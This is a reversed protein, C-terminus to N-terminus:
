NKGIIEGLTKNNECISKKILNDTMGIIAGITKLQAASNMFNISNAYSCLAIDIDKNNAYLTLMRAKYIIRTLAFGSKSVISSVPLLLMCEKDKMEAILKRDITFDDIIVARSGHRIFNILENINKSNGVINNKIAADEIKYIHKFGLRQEFEFTFNSSSKVIDYYQM